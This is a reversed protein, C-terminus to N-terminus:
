SQVRPISFENLGFFIKESGLCAYVLASRSDVGETTPSFTFNFESSPSGGLKISASIPHEKEGLHEFGVSFQLLPFDSIPKISTALPCKASM